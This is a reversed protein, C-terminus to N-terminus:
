KLVGDVASILANKGESKSVVGAPNLEAMVAGYEDDDIGTRFVVPIDKYRDDALLARCVDPGNMEPMAYDLLILDPHVASLCEIAERGSTACLVEHGAKTLWRRTLELMDKDDDVLLILSM